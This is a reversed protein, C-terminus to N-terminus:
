VQHDRIRRTGPERSLNSTLQYVVRGSAKHIKGTIGGGEASVEGMENSLPKMKDSNSDNVIGGLRVM